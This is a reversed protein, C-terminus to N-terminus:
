RHKKSYNLGFVVSTIVLFLLTSVLSVRAGTSVVEPKFEFVITHNGKPVELGRLIYNVSYHPVEQDDITVQWGHKYYNESFVAFGDNANSSKYVLKNPAYDILEIHATSDVVFQGGSHLNKNIVASLKTKLTDLTLIEADADSVSSLNKIFWANGNVEDNEIYQMQGQDDSYIIYKTNLMNFVEPNGKDIHFDMVENFRRMKAAHYGNIANHFYSSRTSGDATDYVRFTTSDRLIEKDISTATYPKDVKLASVFNDSNVYRWDVGTLDILILVGILVIVLNKTVKQRLYLWLCTAVACVFFLTRLVDATFM